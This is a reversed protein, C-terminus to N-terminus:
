GAGIVLTATNSTCFSLSPPMAGSFSVNVAQLTLTLDPLVGAPISSSVAFSVSVDGSADTFGLPLVGFPSAVDLTLSGFPGVSL